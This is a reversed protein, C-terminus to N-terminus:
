LYPGLGSERDKCKNFSLWFVIWFFNLFRGFFWGQGYEQRQASVVVVRLDVRMTKPSAM